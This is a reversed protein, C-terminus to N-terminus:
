PGRCSPWAANPKMMPWKLLLLCKQQGDQIMAKDHKDQEKGAAEVRAPTGQTQRGPQGNRDGCELEDAQYTPPEPLTQDWQDYHHDSASGLGTTEIHHHTTLSSLAM